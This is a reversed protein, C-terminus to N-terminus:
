VLDLLDPSPEKEDLSILYKEDNEIVLLAIPELYNAHFGHSDIEVVKVLPHIDKEGVRIAKLPLINKLIGKQLSEIRDLVM